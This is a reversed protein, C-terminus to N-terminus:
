IRPWRASGSRLWGHAGPQASEWGRWRTALWRCLEDNPVFSTLLPECIWRWFCWPPFLEDCTELTLLDNLRSQTLELKLLHNEQHVSWKYILPYGPKAQNRQHLNGAMKLPERSPRLLLVDKSDSYFKKSVRIKQYLVVPSSLPRPEDGTLSSESDDEAATPVELSSSM